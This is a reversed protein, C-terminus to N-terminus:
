DKLLGKIDDYLRVGNLAIARQAAYSDTLYDIWSQVKKPAHILFWVLIKQDSFDLKSFESSRKILLALIKFDSEDLIMFNNEDESIILDNWKIISM